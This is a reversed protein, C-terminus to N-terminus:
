SIPAGRIWVVIRRPVRVSRSCVISSFTALTSPLSPLAQPNADPAPRRGAIPEASCATRTELGTRGPSRTKRASRFKPQCCSRDNTVKERNDVRVTAGVQKKGGLPARERRCRDRRQEGRLSARLRSNVPRPPAAPDAGGKQDTHKVPGTVRSGPPQQSGREPRPATPVSPSSARHSRSRFRHRM